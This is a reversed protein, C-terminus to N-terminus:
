EALHDGDVHALCLREIQFVVRPLDNLVAANPFRIVTAGQEEIWRSREADNQSTFAHATGDLEVVLRALPCYFDVVYPGFPEQRLWRLGLSRHARLRAWLRREASTMRSRLSIAQGTKPAEHAM